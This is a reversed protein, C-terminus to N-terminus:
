RFSVKLNIGQLAAKAISKPDIELKKNKHEESLEFKFKRLLSIIGLKSQIKALRIGICGRPGDGFALLPKEAFTKHASQEGEFREPIFDDPNEFYKPDRHLGEISIFVITGKEVIVDSDPINYDKTCKRSTFGFPPHLRLTESLIFILKEIEYFHTFYRVM